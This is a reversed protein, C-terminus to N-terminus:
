EATGRRREIRERGRVVAREVKARARTVGTTARAKLQDLRGAPEEEGRAAAVRRRLPAVEESLGDKVSEGARRVYYRTDKFHRNM